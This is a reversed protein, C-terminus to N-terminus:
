AISARKFFTQSISKRCCISNMSIASGCAPSFPLSFRSSIGSIRVSPQRIQTATFVKKKALRDLQDRELKDLYKKREEENMRNLARRDLLSMEDAATGNAIGFEDVLRNTTM